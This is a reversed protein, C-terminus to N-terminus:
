YTELHRRGEGKLASALAARDLGAAGAIDNLAAVVGQEM